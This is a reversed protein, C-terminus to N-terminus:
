WFPDYLNPINEWWIKDAEIELFSYAIIKPHPPFNEWEWSIKIRNKIINLHMIEASDYLMSLVGFFPQGKNLINKVGELHLKGKLTNHESLVVEDKLDEKSIESSEMSFEIKNTAHQINIISGDHFFAEYDAINMMEVM